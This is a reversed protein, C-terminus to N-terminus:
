NETTTVLVKDIRAGDRDMIEFRFDLWYLVDGVQPVRQFEHLILGSLTNFPLEAIMDDMDFRHLFEALPFQGDVLYSGDMRKLFTYDESEFEAVDGVLAELLDNLTVMGEVEGFEDIVLAYHDRSIKFQRLAQYASMNETFYQPETILQDLRFDPDNIHRFLSKLKVIGLVKGTTAALVPYVSHMEENVTHRIREADDDERLFVTNNRHTMLSAVKRDGMNFVREVIDQEITEIAGEMTGEQIFAKIEEETIRRRLGPNIRFTKIILNTSFTLLWIFPATIVSLWYMPFAFLKSVKEPLTLGIRKPVLEGLVLSFYTLVVVVSAVALPEVYGHLMDFRGFFAELDKEINEGSYMGLLIGIVTIGIQVTSLFKGPDDGLELAKKARKDGKTAMNKLRTKRASVMAIESMAFIGNLLILLFIIILEM